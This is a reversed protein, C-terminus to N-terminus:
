YCGDAPSIIEMMKLHNVSWVSGGLDSTSAKADAIVTFGQPNAQTCTFNYRQKGRVLGAMIGESFTCDACGPCSCGLPQDQAFSDHETRYATQAVVIASLTTKVEVEKASCIFRTYSPVAVTAMVGVITVAMMLEILTFGRQSDDKM